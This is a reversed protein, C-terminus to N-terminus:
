LTLPQVRAPYSDIMLYARVTTGTLGEPLALSVSALTGAPTATTTTSATYNLAVPRGDAGNVLLIGINHAAVELTSDQLTASVTDGLVAFTADGV